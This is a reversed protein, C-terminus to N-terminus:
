LHKLWLSWLSSPFCFRPLFLVAFEAARNHSPLLTRSMSQLITRLSNCALFTKGGGTPVKFCVHPTGAITNNYPPLTDFGVRVGKEEWFDSYAKVVSNTTNVLECYRNLDSIVRKQFNKLEM